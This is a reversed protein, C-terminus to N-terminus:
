SRVNHVMAELVEDNTEQWAFGTAALKSVDLTFSATLKRLSERTLPAPLGVRRAATGAGAIVNALAMPLTRPRPVGMRDALDDVWQRLQVPSRDAVNFREATCTQETGPWFLLHVAAAAVTDVSAFSRWPDVGGVHFYYGRRVAHMLSELNFRVGAGYTLCPRLIVCSLGRMAAADAASETALKMASYDSDGAVASYERLDVGQQGAYVHASSALVVREVGITLACDLVNQTGRVNVERAQNLAAASRLDTHAVGALHLVHTAGRMWQQLSGVSLVDGPTAECGVDATEKRHQLVRVSINQQQLLAVVRKGILGSAGTVAVIREQQGEKM